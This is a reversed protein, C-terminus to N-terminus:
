QHRFRSRSRLTSLYCGVFERLDKLESNGDEALLSAFSRLGSPALFLAHKSDAQQHAQFRLPQLHPIFKASSRYEQSFKSNFVLTVDRTFRNGKIIIIDFAGASKVSHIVSDALRM